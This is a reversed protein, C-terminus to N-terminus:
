LLPWLSRFLTRESVTLAGKAVELVAGTALSFGAVIRMVPFGCGPKQTTPQPYREQNAETDPMSVSSGDFVKM